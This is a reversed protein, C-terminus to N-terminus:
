SDCDYISTPQWDNTTANETSSHIQTMALQKEDLLFLAVVFTHAQYRIFHQNVPHISQRM